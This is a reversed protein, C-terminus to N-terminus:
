GVESLEPEDLPPEDQHARQRAALVAVVAVIAVTAVATVPGDGYGLGGHEKGFWDAFSAGLPRTIVYATWFALVPNWGLKWHGFAPVLFAALFIVASALYGLNLRIATLDGAATGLAFTSMVTLWYYVERRRTAISHISLTGESRYWRTFIVALAVMFVPTTVEYPVGVIVHTVDAVMTGVVAVMTIAFWYVWAVYRPTRFQLWLSGVLLALAVPGVIVPSYNIGFYDSATEGMGTTLLKALWFLGTIAPVKTGLYTLPRSDTTTTVPSFNPLSVL